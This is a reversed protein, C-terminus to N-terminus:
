SGRRSWLSEGRLDVGLDLKEGLTEIRRRQIRPLQGVGALLDVFLEGVTGSLDRLLELAPEAPSDM